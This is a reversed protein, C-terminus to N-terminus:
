DTSQRGNLNILSVPMAVVSMASSVRVTPRAIARWRCRAPSVWSCTASRSPMPLSATERMSRPTTIGVTARSTSSAPM